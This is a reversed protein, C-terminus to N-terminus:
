SSSCCLYAHSQELLCYVLELDMRKTSSCLSPPSFALWIHSEWRGTRRYFTVGRYQSSRSRPGRRSKKVPQPVEAPKGVVVRESSHCFSVGAWHASPPPQPPLASGDGGGGGWADAHGNLPFFQHTVIAPESEGCPSDERHRSISFGFVKGACGDAEGEDSAEIILASSSSANNEAEASSAAAVNRRAEEGGNGAASAAPSDDEEEEETLSATSNLDWMGEM